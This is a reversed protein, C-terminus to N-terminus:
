QNSYTFILETPIKVWKRDVVIKIRSGSIQRLTYTGDGNYQLTASLDESGYDNTIGLIYMNQGKKKVDTILWKRSDRIAGMYGPLPGFIEQGEVIIDNDNFNIKFFVQYESNYLYGNFNNKSNQAQTSTCCFALITALGIIHKLFHKKMIVWQILLIKKSYSTIVQISVCAHVFNIFYM